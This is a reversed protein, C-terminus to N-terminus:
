GHLDEATIPAGRMLAAQRGLRGTVARTFLKRLGPLYRLALLGQQRMFAVPLLPNTFVRILGDTFAVIIREDQKRWDAYKQLASLTGPHLGQTRAKGLIELLAAVDRMSLNFGQAAVPHIYHAANGILVLRNRVVERSRVLALPFCFREGVETVPPIHSGFNEQIYVGFETNGMTMLRDAEPNDVSCVAAYGAESRPLLAIAGGEIFREYALGTDLKQVDLNAIVASQDYERRSQEIHFLRCIQSDAGDAGILLDAMIMQSTEEAELEMIAAEETTDASVITAPAIVEINSREAIAEHLVRGMTRVSLVYGLSQLGEDRADMMVSGFRGRSSVHIRSIDIAEKSMAQWLGLGELAIMTSRSFGLHREDFAPQHSASVKTKEILAVSFGLGSLGYALSSGVAGAGVVAIDFRNGM